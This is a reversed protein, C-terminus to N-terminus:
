RFEGRERMGATDILGPTVMCGAADIEQVAYGCLGPGIRAIVGDTVALDAEFVRMKEVDVITGNRIVVSDM